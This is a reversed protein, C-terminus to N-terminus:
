DAMECESESGLLGSDGTNGACPQKTFIVWCSAALPYNGETALSQSFKLFFAMVTMRADYLSFFILSVFTPLSQLSIDKFLGFTQSQLIRLLSWTQRKARKGKKGGGRDGSIEM